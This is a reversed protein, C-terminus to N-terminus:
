IPYIRKPATAEGALKRQVAEFNCLHHCKIAENWFKQCQFSFESQNLTRTTTIGRSKQYQSM